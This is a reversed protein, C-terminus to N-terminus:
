RRTLAQYFTNAIIQHGTSNPHMGDDLMYASNWNMAAELDACAIGEEAAMQRIKKNLEIVSPKRFAWPGVFPGLTAVVPITGNQKAMYIVYRLNTVIQDNDYYYVDNSGYYLTLYRPNHEALIPRIIATGYSSRTGDVGENVATKGWMRSLVPVYSSDYNVFVGATISDGMAVFINQRSNVITVSVKASEESEGYGNVATVVYYYTTEEILGSHLYPSKAAEIKTGTQSSVTSATSWYINYTIAGGVADWSITAEDNGTQAATLGTPALPINGRTPTASVEQSANGEGYKNVGTVIYYYPTDNILNTHVYPSSVGAIKVGNAKTVGSSISWYINYSTVAEESQSESWAINVTRNGAHTAVSTPPLPPIAISPTASVEKSEASEGYQNAATVVYYYTTGNILGSHTYPSSVKPIMTGTEKSVGTKMSWYITYATAGNVKGWSLVAQSNANSSVVNEPTAPPPIWSADEGGGGGCALFLLCFFTLIVYAFKNKM